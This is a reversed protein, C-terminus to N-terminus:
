FERDTFPLPGHEARTLKRLTFGEPLGASRYKARSIAFDNTFEGYVVYYVFARGDGAQYHTRKWNPLNGTMSKSDSRKCGLSAGMGIIALLVLLTIGRRGPLHECFPFPLPCM